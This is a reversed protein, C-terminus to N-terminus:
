DPSALGVNFEARRSSSTRVLRVPRLPEVSPASKAAITSWVPRPLRVNHWCFESLNMRPNVFDEQWQRHPRCDNINVQDVTVAFPRQDVGPHVRGLADGCQLICEPLKADPEVVEIEEDSSVMVDIMKASRRDYFLAAVRDGEQM